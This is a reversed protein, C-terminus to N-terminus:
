SCTFIGTSNAPKCKWQAGDPSQMRFYSLTGQVDLATGPNTSGIGVNVNSYVSSTGTITTVQTGGNYSTTYNTVWTPLTAYYNFIGHSLLGSDIQLIDGLQAASTSSQANTGRYQGALTFQPGNQNDEFNMGIQTGSSVFESQLSGYQQGFYQFNIGGTSVQGNSGTDVNGNVSINNTVPGSLPIFPSTTGVGVNGNVELTVLPDPTGIGVNGMNNNYIDEGSSTWPSTGVSAVILSKLDQWNLNRNDGGFIVPWYDANGMTSTFPYSSIKGAYSKDSVLLGIAVIFFTILTLYVNKKM